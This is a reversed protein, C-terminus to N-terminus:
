EKLRSNWKKTPKPVLIQDASQNLKNQVNEELNVSPTEPLPNELIEYQSSHIYKDSKTDTLTIEGSANQDDIM